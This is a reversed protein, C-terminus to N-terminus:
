ASCPAAHKLTLFTGMVNLEVTSRVADADSLVLPGSHLSGGASAVVAHLLGTLEAAQVVAVRVQAEDVVDAVVTQVVAGTVTARIRGAADALKSETRGCITIAAGDRALAIACGEGIGSGGGTVLVGYGDLSALTDIDRRSM